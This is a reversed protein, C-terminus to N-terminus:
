RRVKGDDRDARPLHARRGHGVHGRDEERDEDPLDGRQVEPNDSASVPAQAYEMRQGLGRWTRSSASGSAAGPREVRPTISHNQSPHLDLGVAVGGDRTLRTAHGKPGVVTEPVERAMTPSKGPTGLGRM